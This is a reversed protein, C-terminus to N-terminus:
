LGANAQERTRYGGGSRSAKRNAKGLPYGRPPSSPSVVNRRQRPTHPPDRRKAPPAADAGPSLTAGPGSWTGKQGLRNLLKRKDHKVANVLAEGPNVLGCSGPERGGHQQSDRDPSAGPTAAGLPSAVNNRSSRVGRNGAVGTGTPYQRCFPLHRRQGAVRCLLLSSRTDCVSFVSFVGPFPM